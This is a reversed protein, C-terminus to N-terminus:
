ITPLPTASVRIIVFHNPGSFGIAGLSVLAPRSAFRRTSISIRFGHANSFPASVLRCRHQNDQHSILKTALAASTGNPRGAPRRPASCFISKNPLLAIFEVIAQLMVALWCPDQIFYVQVGGERKSNRQWGNLGRNTSAATLSDM